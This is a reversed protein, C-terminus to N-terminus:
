TGSVCNYQLQPQTQLLLSLAHAPAVEFSYLSILIYVTKISLSIGISGSSLSFYERFVKQTLLYRKRLVKRMLFSNGFFLLYFNCYLLMVSACPVASLVSLCGFIYRGIQLGIMVLLGSAQFILLSWLSSAVESRYHQDQDLFKKKSGHGGRLHTMDM